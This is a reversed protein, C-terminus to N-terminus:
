RSDRGTGAGTTQQTAEPPPLPTNSGGFRRWAWVVLGVSIIFFITVWIAMWLNVQTSRKHVNVLPLDSQADFAM